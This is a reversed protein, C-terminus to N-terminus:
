SINLNLKATEIDDINTLLISTLEAITRYEENETNTYDTDFFTNFFELQEYPSLLDISIQKDIRGPRLLAKDLSDKNNTTCIFICNNYSYIGDMMNLTNRLSEGNFVQDIDDEESPAEEVVDTIKSDPNLQAVVKKKPKSKPLKRKVPSMMSLDIDEVLLISNENIDSILEETLPKNVVYVNFKFKNAAYLVMSSKGTGPPGYLLYGRKFPMNRKEYLDKKSIFNEIDQILEKSGEASPELVNRLPATKRWWDDGQKYLYPVFDGGDHLKIQEIEQFLKHMRKKFITFLKVNILDTEGYINKKEEKSRNIVTLPHGKMFFYSKGYGPLLIEEKGFKQIKFNRMFKIRHGNDRFWKNFKHFSETSYHIDLNYFFLREFLAKIKTYITGLFSKFMFISGTLVGLGLLVNPDLGQVFTKLEEM